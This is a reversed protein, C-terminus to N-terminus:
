IKMIIPVNKNIYITLYKFYDLWGTVSTLQLHKPQLIPQYMNNKVVVGVELHLSM